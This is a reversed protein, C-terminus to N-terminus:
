HKGPKSFKQQYCQDLYINVHKSSPTFFFGLTESKVNTHVLLSDSTLLVNVNDMFNKM